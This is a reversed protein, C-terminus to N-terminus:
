VGTSFPSPVCSRAGGTEVTVLVYWCPEGISALPMAEKATDKTGGCASDAARTVYSECVSYM